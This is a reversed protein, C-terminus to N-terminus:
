TIGIVVGPHACDPRIFNWTAGVSDNNQDPWTSIALWVPPERCRLQIIQSYNRDQFCADYTGWCNRCTQPIQFWQTNSTKALRFCHDTMNILAIVYDGMTPPGVQELDQLTIRMRGTKQVPGRQMETSRSTWESM